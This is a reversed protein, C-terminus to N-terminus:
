LIRRGIINKYQIFCRIQIVEEDSSQKKKGRSKEVEKNRRSIKSLRPEDIDDEEESDKEEQIQKKSKSRAYKEREGRYNM